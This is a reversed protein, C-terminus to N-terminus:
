IAIERKTFKIYVPESNRLVLDAQFRLDSCTTVPHLRFNRMIGSVISKMVMIAFKQGEFVYFVALENFLYEIFIFVLNPLTCVLVTGHARVLLYTPM